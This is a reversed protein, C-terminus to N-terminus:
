VVPSCWLTNALPLNGNVDFNIPKHTTPRSGNLRSSMERLVFHGSDRM